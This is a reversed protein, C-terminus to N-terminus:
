WRNLKRTFSAYKSTSRSDMPPFYKPLVEDAFVDPRIIVFSCGHPLWSIIDSLSKDNLIAMLREPFIERGTLSITNNNPVNSLEGIGNINRDNADVVINNNRTDGGEIVNSFINTFNYQLPTASLQQQQQSTLMALATAAEMLHALGSAELIAKAQLLSNM